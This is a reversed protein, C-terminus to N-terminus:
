RAGPRRRHRPVPRHQHRVQVLLLARAPVPLLVSRRMQLRVLFLVQLRALDKVPRQMIYLVPLYVRAVAPSPVTASALLRVPDVVRSSSPLTTPPSTSLSLNRCRCFFPSREDNAMTVTCGTLAGHSLGLGPFASNRAMAIVPFTTTSQAPNYPTKM